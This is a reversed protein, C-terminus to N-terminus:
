SSGLPQLMSQSSLDLVVFPQRCLHKLATRSIDCHSCGSSTCPGAVPQSMPCSFAALEEWEVEFAEARLSSLPVWPALSAM